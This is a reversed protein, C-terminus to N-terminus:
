IKFLQSMTQGECPVTFDDVRTLYVKQVGEVYQKNM